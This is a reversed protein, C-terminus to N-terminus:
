INRLAPNKKCEEEFEARKREEDLKQDALRKEDEPDVFVDYARKIGKESLRPGEAGGLVEDTNNPLGEHKVRSEITTLVINPLLFMGGTGSRLTIVLPVTESLAAAHMIDGLGTGIIGLRKAIQNWRKNLQQNLQFLPMSHRTTIYCYLVKFYAAGLLSRIESDDRQSCLVSWSVNLHRVTNQLQESYAFKDIDLSKLSKPMQM